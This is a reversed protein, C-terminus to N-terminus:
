TPACALHAWGAAVLLLVAVAWRRRPRWLAVVAAVLALV